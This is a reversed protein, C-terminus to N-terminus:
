DRYEMGWNWSKQIVLGSLSFWQVDLDALSLVVCSHNFQTSGPNIVLTTGMKEAYVQHTHGVILVEYDFSALRESWRQKEAELVNGAQDLLRIGDMMSDPPSAHVMYLRKGMMEERRVLPLSNFYQNTNKKTQESYKELYWIEHNGLIAQVGNDKLLSVTEDLANGYGAIDGTCWITDVQERNFIELAEAIPAPSAHPDGILGIKNM